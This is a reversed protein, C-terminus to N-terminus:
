RTELLSGQWVTGDHFSSPLRLLSQGFWYFFCGITVAGLCLQLARVVGIFGRRRTLPISALKKLCVACILRDEHETM